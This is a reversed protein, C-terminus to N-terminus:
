TIVVPENHEDRVVVVEVDAREGTDMFIISSQDVPDTRVGRKEMFTRGLIVPFYADECLMVTCSVARSGVQVPWKGLNTIGNYGYTGPSTDKPIFGHALAFSRSLYVHRYGEKLMMPVDHVPGISGRLLRVGLQSHFQEFALKHEPPPLTGDQTPTKQTRLSLAEAAPNRLNAEPTPGSSWGPPPPPSPASPYLISDRGTTTHSAAFTQNDLAKANAHASDLRQVSVKDAGGRASAAPVPNSSVEAAGPGDRVTQPTGTPPAGLRNLPEKGQPLAPSDLFLTEEPFSKVRGAFIEWDDADELAFQQGQWAYRLLVSDAPVHAKKAARTRLLELSEEARLRLSFPPLSGAHINLITM